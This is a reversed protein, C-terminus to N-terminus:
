FDALSISAQSALADPSLTQATSSTEEFSDNLQSNMSVGKSRGGSKRQRVRDTAQVFSAQVKLKDYVNGNYDGASRYLNGMFYLEQGDDCSTLIEDTKSEKDGMLDIRSCYTGVEQLSETGASVFVAPKRKSSDEYDTQPTAFGSGFVVAQEPDVKTDARLRRAAGVYVIVKPPKTITKDQDREALVPQLIGSVLVRVSEGAVAKDGLAKLFKANETDADVTLLVPIGPNSATNIAKFQLCAVGEPSTTQEAGSVISASINTFFAM